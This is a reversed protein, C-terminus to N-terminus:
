VLGLVRLLVVIILITVILGLVGGVYMAASLAAHPGCPVRNAMARQDGAARPM